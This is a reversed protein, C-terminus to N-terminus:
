FTTIFGFAPVLNASVIFLIKYKVMGLRSVMSYLKNLLREREPAEILSLNLECKLSRQNGNRVLPPLRSPKRVPSLLPSVHGLEELVNEM